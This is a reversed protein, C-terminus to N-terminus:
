SRGGGHNEAVANSRARQESGDGGGARVEPRAITQLGAQGISVLVAVLRCPWRGVLARGFAHRGREGLV